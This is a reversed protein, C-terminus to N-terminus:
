STTRKPFVSGFIGPNKRVIWERLVGDKVTWFRRSDDSAFFSGLGDTVEYYNSGTLSALGLKNAMAVFLSTNRRALLEVTNRDFSKLVTDELTLLDYEGLKTGSAYSIFKKDLDVAAGRIDGAIRIQESAMNATDEAGRKIMWLVGADGALANIVWFGDGALLVEHQKGTPINWEQPESARDDFMNRDLAVLPKGTADKTFIYGVGDLWSFSTTNKAYVNLKNSNLDLTYLTGAILAVMKDEDVFHVDKPGATNLPSAFLSGRFGEPDVVTFWKRGESTLQMIWRNAPSYPSTWNIESANTLATRVHSPLREFTFPVALETGTRYWQKDATRYVVESGAVFAAKVEKAVERTEPESLVLDVATLETAQGEKIVVKEQYPRYGPLTVEVMYEGPLLNRLAFPTRKPYSKGSVIVTAGSPRTTVGLVGTKQVQFSEFNIRYGTAYLVGITAVIVFTVFALTYGIITPWNKNQM